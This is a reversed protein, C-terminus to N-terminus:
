ASPSLVQFLKCWFACAGGSPAKVQFTRRDTVILLLNDARAALTTPLVARLISGIRIEGCQKSSSEDPYYVVRREKLDVHFWRRKWSKKIDGLKTLYGKVSHSSVFIDNPVDCKLVGTLFLRLDAQALLTSDAHAQSRRALQRIAKANALLTQDSSVPKSGAPRNAVAMAQQRSAVEFKSKQQKQEQVALDRRRDSEQRQEWELRAQNQLQENKAILDQIRARYEARIAAIERMQESTSYNVAGSPPMCARLAALWVGRVSANAARFHYVRNPVVLIFDGDDGQPAVHQMTVIPISGKSKHDTLKVWYTLAQHELNLVCWREQYKQNNEGTKSLYGSCGLQEVNVGECGGLDPVLLDVYRHLNPVIGDHEAEGHRARGRIASALQDIELMAAGRLSAKESQRTTEERTQRQLAIFRSDVHAKAQQLQQCEQRLGDREQEVSLLLLGLRMNEDQTATLQDDVEARERDLTTTIASEQVHADELAAKALQEQELEEEARDLDNLLVAHRQKMEDLELELRERKAREEALAVETAARETQMSTLLEQLQHSEQLKEEELKRKEAAAAETEARLAQQEAQLRLKEETQAQLLTERERLHAQESELRLQREQVAAEAEARLRDELALREEREVQRLEALEEAEAQLRSAEEQHWATETAALAELDDARQQAELREHELSAMRDQIAKEAQARENAQEAQREREVTTAQEDRQQLQLTRAHVNQSQLALLETFAAVQEQQLRAAQQLAAVERRDLFGRAVRQLVSAAQQFHQLCQQLEDQHTYKLFVKSHGLKADPVGAAKLVATVAAKPSSHTAKPSFALIGYQKLFSEFDPRYSYGERRIRITELVGAYRLQPKVFIPEFNGYISNPNPKICRVFHPQSTELHAALLRLSNRFQATLSLPKKHTRSHVDKAQRTKRGITKTGDSPRIDVPQVNGTAQVQGLFMVSLLSSGSDQLLEVAEQALHDRNSEVFNGANYKVEGAYHRLKFVPDDGKAGEFKPAGKHQAKFKDVVTRSTAKKFAIVDDLLAFMGHPKALYLDLMDQNDTYSIVTTDVGERSYEELELQFVHKNFVAQLRENALNICWQEFGNHDFHEFGFIDLIGIEKVHKTKGSPQLLKNIKNVVWGFLRDYLAKAVADRTNEARQLDYRQRSERLQQSLLAESLEGADVKLLEAIWKLRRDDASTTYAHQDTDKYSFEINGLHLVAALIRFCETAEDTSFGVDQMAQEVVALESFDCDPQQGDMNLYRFTDQDLRLDSARMSSQLYYLVHFTANNRTTAVVRSKELLYTELLAGQVQGHMDFLLQTYKGFRSSNDNMRTTANGFAELLPHIQLIQREIASSTDSQAGSLCLLHQIITNSSYTKGSGSDGSIIVCQTRSTHLMAQYASDAIAFVHPPLSSRAANRYKAATANNYISLEKFPNCALLIDGIYTYITDSAYRRELETVLSEDSLEALSALDNVIDQAM